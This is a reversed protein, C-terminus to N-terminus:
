DSEQSVPKIDKHPIFLGCGLIRGTGLGQQQLRLSEQPKLDALMLSRTFLHGQPLTFTHTKGCLAKRCQIDQQKLQIVAQQLFTEEDQTEDAIVHRAFLVPMAILPKEIAKGLQLSHGAIELTMGSLVTTESKRHSPIRLTLKTRHSLHLLMEQEQPRYWGNGSEAGHILHIGAFPEDVLWPLVQQIAQSLVYAHDVPLTRCNMSFSLDVVTPPTSQPTQLEDEQWLM